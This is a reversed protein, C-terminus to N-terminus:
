SVASRMFHKFRLWAALLGAAGFALLVALTRWVDTINGGRAMVDQLGHQAWYQPTFYGMVQAFHPMLQSPVWLGGLVAGGMTILMTVGRGQNEGRFFLSLGVGIGTGCIALCLVIASVATLDGLNMGYVFHGFSLLITCQILVAILSPIWMGILYSAPRMPTSRLRSLMGSEKEGLFSRMITLIIFFVFMVTYGPVVQQIMTIADNRKGGANITKVQIPPQMIQHIEPKTKGIRALTGTMKQKQYASTISRLVAQIPATAQSATPDQYFKIQASTKGFQLAEGFGKPIVLLSTIKENKIAAIAKTASSDEKQLAFGDIKEVRDLFSKSVKSDDQNVYHITIDSEGINGFISAFIVIFGIPMIVLFFLNGKTKLMLKLEKIMISKM